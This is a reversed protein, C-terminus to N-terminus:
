RRTPLCSGSAAPRSSTRRRALHKPDARDDVLGDGILIPQADLGHPKLEAHDVFGGGLAGVLRGSTTM